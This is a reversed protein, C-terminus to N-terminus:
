AVDKKVGTFKNQYSGPAAYHNGLGYHFSANRKTPHKPLPEVTAPLQATHPHEPGVYIKLRPEIYKHRLNTRRLMGLVAKRLIQEPRRELM